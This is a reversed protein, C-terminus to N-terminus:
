KTEFISRDCYNVSNISHKNGGGHCGCADGDKQTGV